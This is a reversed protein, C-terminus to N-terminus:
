ISLIFSKLKRLYNDVLGKSFSSAGLNLPPLVKMSSLGYKSAPSIGEVISWKSVDVIIYAMSTDLVGSSNKLSSNGFSAPKLIIGLSSM